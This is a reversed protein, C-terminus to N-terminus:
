RMQAKFSASPIVGIIATLTLVVVFCLRVVLANLPSFVVSVAAAIGAFVLLLSTMYAAFRGGFSAAASTNMEAYFRGM